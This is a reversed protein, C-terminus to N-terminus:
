YIGHSDIQIWPIRVLLDNNRQNDWSGAWIDSHVGDAGLPAPFITLTSGAIWPYSTCSQPTSAMCGLECVPEWVWQAFDM